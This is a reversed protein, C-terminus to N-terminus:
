RFLLNHMVTKFKEILILDCILSKRGFSLKMFFNVLNFHYNFMLPTRVTATNFVATKCDPLISISWAPLDYPLGNFSVRSSSSQHYNSLFAACSGDKSKFV